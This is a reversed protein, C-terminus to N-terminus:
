ESGSTRRTIQFSYDFSAAPRQPTVHLVYNGRPLYDTEITVSASNTDGKREIKIGQQSIIPQGADNLLDLKILGESGTPLALNFRVALVGDALVFRPQPGSRSGSPLLDAQLVSGQVIQGLPVSNEIQRTLLALRDRDERIRKAYQYDVVGLFAAILVLAALAYPYFRALPITSPFRVVDTRTDITRRLARAFQLKRRRLPSALFNAEFSLRDAASLEGSVYDDVLEEEAIEVEQHFGDDSLIRQEIEARREAQLVGLLYDRIQRDTSM